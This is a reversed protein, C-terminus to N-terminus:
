GDIFKEAFSRIIYYAPKVIKPATRIGVIWCKEKNSIGDISLFEKSYFKIKNVIEDYNRSILEKDHTRLLEKCIGILDECLRKLCASYHKSNDKEQILLDETVKWREIWQTSVFHTASDPNDVYYNYLKHETSVIIKAYKSVSVVFMLDEAISINIPFGINNNKIIDSRFLKNYCAPYFYNNSIAECFCDENQILSAPYSYKKLDKGNDDCFEINCVSFDANNDQLLKILTEYMNLELWDDSDVFGIYKGSSLEIGFNRASSVGGNEKHVSKVRSDRQAWEDCIEASNDSSGDDVLIIELNKYTQNVISEVCRNLYKANNYVPVIVSILNDM